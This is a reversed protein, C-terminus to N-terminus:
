NGGRPSCVPPQPLEAGTPPIVHHRASRDGVKEDQAQSAGAVSLDDIVGGDVTHGGQRLRYHIGDALLTPEEGVGRHASVHHTAECSEVAAIGGAVLEDRGPDPEVIALM